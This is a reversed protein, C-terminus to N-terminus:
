DLVMIINPPKGSLHCPENTAARLQDSTTTDFDIWGKTALEYGTTVGSRAFTSLHNVGQFQEWPDEPVALSLATIAVGCSAAGLLSIQRSVRFPDIRWILLLAPVALLAAIILITRLDPFISLLFGITESDIILVDFFNIVMWLISFKFQSLVVLITIVGLSLAAAIGPRRLAVLFAFNLFAWFLLALVASIWGFETLAMIVFAVVHMAAIVGARVRWSDALRKTGIPSAGFVPHEISM